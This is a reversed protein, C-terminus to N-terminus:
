EITNGLAEDIMARWIPEVDVSGSWSNDIEGAEYDAHLEGGSVMAETPERMAALVARAQGLTEAHTTSYYAVVDDWSTERKIQGNWIARAMREVMESM